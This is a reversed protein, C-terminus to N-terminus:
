SFQHASVNQSDYTKEVPVQRLEMECVRRKMDKRRAKVHNEQGAGCNHKVVEGKNRKRMEIVYRNLRQQEQISLKQMSTTLIGEESLDTVDSISDHDLIQDKPKDKRKSGHGQMKLHATKIFDLFERMEMNTEVFGGPFTRCCSCHRSHKQPEAKPPM